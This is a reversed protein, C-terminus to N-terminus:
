HSGFLRSTAPLFEATFQARRQLTDNQCYNAM